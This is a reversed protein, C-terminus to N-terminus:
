VNQPIRAAPAKNPRSFLIRKWKNVQGLYQMVSVTCRARESLSLPARRVASLYGKLLVLRDSPIRSSTKGHVFHAREQPTEIQASAGRHIRKYFLVDPIEAFRAHLALEAMLVKEPGYCQPFLGTRSLIETRILGYSDSCWTTGLIVSHFRNCAARDARTYGPKVLGTELLSHSSHGALIAPDEEPAIVTGAEDIHLVRCQCWGVDPESDLLQVCQELWREDYVDDHGIWKFYEGQAYDVLLNHNRVAGVNEPQRIYRIREDKEQWSRCLRETEDTSANDSIILEFDEFTQSLMSQLCEDLYNAANYVPLGISVRPKTM